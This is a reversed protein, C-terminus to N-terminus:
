RPPDAAEPPGVPSVMATAGAPSPMTPSLQPAGWDATGPGVGTTRGGVRVRAAAIVTVLQPVTTSVPATTVWVTMGDM